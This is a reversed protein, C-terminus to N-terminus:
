EMKKKGTKSRQILKWRNCFSAVKILPITLLKEIYSGGAHQSLRGPFVVIWLLRLFLFYGPIFRILFHIVEVILGQIESSISLVDSCRFIDWVWVNLSHLNHIQSEKGFAIQLNWTVGISIGMVNKEYIFLFGLIWIFICFERSIWIRLLGWCFFFFFFSLPPIVTGYNM